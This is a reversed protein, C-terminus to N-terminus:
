APSSLVSRPTALKRLGIRGARELQRQVPHHGRRVQAIARMRDDGGSRAFHEVLAVVLAGAHEVAM